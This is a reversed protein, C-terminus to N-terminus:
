RRRIKKKRSQKSKKQKTGKEIKGNIGKIVEREEQKEDKLESKIKPTEAFIKNKEHPIITKRKTKEKFILNLPAAIFISSYCGATMGVFLGMVFDKLTIGGFLLMAIISFETTLITNLSRAMTEWLSRNVLSSDIERKEKKKNERIRDFIVITDNISYGVITLLVAVYPSNVELRLLSTFIILVLCDHILAIVASIGYLFEFRITVYVLIGISAIILSIIANKRLEKSFIPGVEEEKDAEKFGGGLFFIEEVVLNLKDEPVLQKNILVRKNDKVTLAGKPLNFRTSIFNVQKQTLPEDVKVNFKNINGFEVFLASKLRKLVEGSLKETRILIDKGGELIQVPNHKIKLRRIVREVENTRVVRSAPYQIITGSSFDIGVNFGYPKIKLSAFGVLIVVLSLSFWLRKKDVINFKSFDQKIPFKIPLYYKFSKLLKFDSVLLLLTKTVFVASFMSVVVGLTLTVAFGKIPGTGFSYLVASAILTTINADIIATLARSFGAEIAAKTTKGFNIEEKIREFIIVNADVAMGVSLILGAIGPLTLTANLISLLGLIVVVYILLALDAILGCLKYFFAMYLVVLVFGIMGAILSKNLSDKGLTPGVTRNEIIQIPVPLRGANLMIALDQADEVRFGGTIQAEGGYIADRIVPCSIVRGDLSIALYKGINRSTHQGFIKAGRKNFTLGVYPRGLDDFDARAEKLDEGSLVVKQTTVREGEKLPKDGCDVFELHATTEILKRIRRPDKEGPIEIIVWNKGQRQIIIEKVGSPDIRGRMVRIVGEVDADTIKKGKQSKCELLLHIGGRLDLGLNIPNRKSIKWRYALWSACILIVIIIVSIKSIINKNM